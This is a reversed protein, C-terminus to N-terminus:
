SQSITIQLQISVATTKNFTGFAPSDGSTNHDLMISTGNVTGNFIGFEAWVFNAVGTGWTATVVATAAGTGTSATMAYTAISIISPATSTALQFDTNASATTGVGVGLSNMPAPYTFPTTTYLGSVNQGFLQGLIVSKGNDVIRNSFEFGDVCLGDTARYVLGLGQCTLSGKSPLYLGADDLHFSEPCDLLQEPNM